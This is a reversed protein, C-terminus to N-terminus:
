AARSTIHSFAFMHSLRWDCIVMTLRNNFNKVRHDLNYQITQISHISAAVQALWFLLPHETRAHPIRELYKPLRILKRRREATTQDISLHHAEQITCHVTRQFHIKYLTYLIYAFM